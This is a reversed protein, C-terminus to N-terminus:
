LNAAGRPRGIGIDEGGVRDIREVRQRRQVVIALGHHRRADRPAAARARFRSRM